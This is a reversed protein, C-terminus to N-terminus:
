CGEDHEDYGQDHLRNCQRNNQGKPSTDNREEHHQKCFLTLEGIRKGMLTFPTIVSQRTTGIQVIRADSGTLATINSGAAAM